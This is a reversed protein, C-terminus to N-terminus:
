WAARLDALFRLPDAPQYLIPVGGAGSPPLLVLRVGRARYMRMRAGNAARFWGSAYRLNSFGNTRAVPRWDPDTAIDVVRVRALDIESKKVTVSYFCPDHITLADATLTYTAPGPNYFLLGVILAVFLTAGAAVKWVVGSSGALTRAADTAPAREPAPVMERIADVFPGPRDPSYLTTRTATTVVVMRDRRTAYWTCKGLARTRFIGYYGFLGGSGWLRLAGRLDDATAIRVDRLEELPERVAGILRRVTIARGACEYGRPSFAYGGLLILAGIAAIPLTQTYVAAVVLLASLGISICKTLGDYSVSFRMAM